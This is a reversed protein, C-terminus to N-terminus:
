ASGTANPDEPPADWRRSGSGEERAPEWEGGAIDRLQM